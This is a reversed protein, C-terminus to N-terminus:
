SHRRSQRPQRCLRRPQPFRGANWRTGATASQIRIQSCSWQRWATWAWWAWSCQCPYAPDIAMSSLKLAAKKWKIKNKAKNKICKEIWKEASKQRDFRISICEALERARARWWPRWGRSSPRARWGRFSPSGRRCGWAWWPARRHRVCKKSKCHDRHQDKKKGRKEQHHLLTNAHKGLLAM